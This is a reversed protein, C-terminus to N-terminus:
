SLGYNVVEKENKTVTDAPLGIQEIVHEYKAMFAVGLGPFLGLLSRLVM